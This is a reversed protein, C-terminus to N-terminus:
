GSVPGHGDYLAIGIHLRMVLAESYTGVHLLQHDIGTMQVTILAAIFYQLM